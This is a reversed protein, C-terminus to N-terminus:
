STGGLQSPPKGARVQRACPACVPYGDPGYRRITRGCRTCPGVTLDVLSATMRQVPWVRARWMVTIVVEHRQPIFLMPDTLGPGDDYSLVDAGAFADLADLTAKRLNEVSPPGTWYNPLCTPCRGLRTQRPAAWWTWERCKDCRRAENLPILDDTAYEVTLTM